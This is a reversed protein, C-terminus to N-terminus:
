KGRWLIVSANDVIGRAEYFALIKEADYGNEALSIIERGTEKTSVHKYPDLVGDTAVVIISDRNIRVCSVHPTRRLVNGLSSDGLARSMELGHDWTVRNYIYGKSYAGGRALAEKLAEPNAIINDDKSVRIKGKADRVFIPSDGLSALIVVGTNEMVVAISLTTGGFIHQTATSLKSVLSMLARKMEKPDKAPMFLREINDHCTKAAEKGGHGDMVALLYGGSFPFTVVFDEQKDRPGQDTATSVRSKIKRDPIIQNM